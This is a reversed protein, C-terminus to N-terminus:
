SLDATLVTKALTLHILVHFCPNEFLCFLKKGFEGIIQHQRQLEVKILIQSASWKSSVSLQWVIIQHHRTYVQFLDVSYQSSQVLVFVSCPIEEPNHHSGQSDPYTKVAFLHFAASFVRLISPLLELKFILIIRISLIYKPGIRMITGHRTEYM